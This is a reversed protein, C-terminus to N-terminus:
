IEEVDVGAAELIQANGFRIPIKAKTSRAARRNALNGGGRSPKATSSAEAAKKEFADRLMKSNTRGLQPTATAAPADDTTSEDLSGMGGGGSGGSEFMKALRISNSRGPSTREPKLKSDTETMSEDLHGGGLSM